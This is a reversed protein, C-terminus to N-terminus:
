RSTLTALRTAAEDALAVLSPSAVILSQPELRGAADHLSLDLVYLSDGRTIGGSVVWRAGSRVGLHMIDERTLVNGRPLNLAQRAERVREPSVVDIGPLRAIDSLVMQPLGLELWATTSDGARNRVDAVAVSPRGAALEAPRSAARGATFSTAGLFLAATLPISALRSGVFRRPRSFGPQPRSGVATQPDPIGVDSRAAISPMPTMAALSERISAALRVVDDAPSRGVARDLRSELLAYEDLAAQYAVATAPAKLANLLYLAADVNVM